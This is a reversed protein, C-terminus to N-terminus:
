ALVELADREAVFVRRADRRRPGRRRGPAAAAPRLASSGTSTTGTSSGAACGAAQGLVPVRRARPVDVAARARARRLRPGARVAGRRCIACRSGARTRTRIATRSSSSRPAARARRDGARARLPRPARAVLVPPPASSRSIARASATQARGLADVRRVLEADFRDRPSGSAGATSAASGHDAADPRRRDGDAVLRAAAGRSARCGSRAPSCARAAAPCSASRCAATSRRQGGRQLRRGRSFVVIADADPRAALWSPPTGPAETLLTRVEGARACSRRSRARAARTDRREGVPQRHARAARAIAAPGPTAYGRMGDVLLDFFRDALADTDRGPQSGPTRGTRPRSSRAARRDRRRPRHAARGLERGERFLARIREEYRRREAVFRERREGELYRWERVFVTAVDLQEAVVRLHSRLALRIREVAPLEDPIADLAAHFADAGKACRRTSCTRSRSSTRTSRARRCAWRRPSITWRRATTARRPSSGPPRAICSM